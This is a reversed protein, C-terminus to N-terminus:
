LRFLGPFLFLHCIVFKINRKFKAQFNLKLDKNQLLNYGGYHEDTDIRNPWFIRISWLAGQKEGWMKCYGNNGIAGPYYLRELLFRLCFSHLIKPYVLHM